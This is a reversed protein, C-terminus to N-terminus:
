SFRPSSQYHSMLQLIISLTKHTKYLIPSTLSLSWKWTISTENSHNKFHPFPIPSVHCRRIRWSLRWKDDSHSSHLPHRKTFRRFLIDLTQVTQTHIILFSSVLGMGDSRYINGKLRNVLSLELLEHSNM